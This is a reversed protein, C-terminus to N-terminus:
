CDTTAHTRRPSAAAYLRDAPQTQSLHRRLRAAAAGLAIRVLTTKGAGNPGILTVIQGEEITLSINELIRKEAFDKNISKAALLVNAAHVDSASDSATNKSNDPIGM